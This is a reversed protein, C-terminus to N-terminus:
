GVEEGRIKVAQYKGCFSCAFSEAHYRGYLRDPYRLTSVMVLPYPAVYGCIDCRRRYVIQNTSARQCEGVIVAGEIAIGM